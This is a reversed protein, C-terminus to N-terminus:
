PSVCQTGGNQQGSILVYQGMRHKRGVSDVTNIIHTVINLGYLKKLELIRSAPSMINLHYRAEDTTIPKVRLAELLRKRQSPLSTDNISNHKKVIDIDNLNSFGQVQVVPNEKQYKM